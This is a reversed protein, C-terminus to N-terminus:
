ALTLYWTRVSLPSPSSTTVLSPQIGSTSWHTDPCGAWDADSYVVLESAFSRYLLLVFDLTGQLYCLIRKLITM